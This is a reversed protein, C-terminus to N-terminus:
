GVEGGGKGKANKKNSTMKKIKKKKSISTVTRRRSHLAQNMSFVQYSNM